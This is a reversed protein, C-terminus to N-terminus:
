KKIQGNCNSGFTATLLNIRSGYKIDCDTIPQINSYIKLNNSDYFNNNVMEGLALQGNNLIGASINSKFPSTIIKNSIINRKGPTKNFNKYTVNENGVYCELKNNNNKKLLFVERGLDAARNLCKEYTVSDSQSGLEDQLTFNNSINDSYCGRWKVNNINNLNQTKNVYYNEGVNLCGQGKIMSSGVYFNPNTKLMTGINNYNKDTSNISILNSPCGNKGATKNYIDSNPYWKFTGKNTVYGIKNDSLKINSGNYKNNNLIISKNLHDILENKEKVYENIKNSFIGNLEKLKNINDSNNNKISSQFGELNNKTKKKIIYKDNYKNILDKGQLLSYMYM